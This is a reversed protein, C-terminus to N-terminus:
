RPIRLIQGPFILNPDDIQFRNAEYIQSWTTGENYDNKAISSLTDGRKVEYTDFGYSERGMINRGFVVPVAVKDIEGNDGDGMDGRASYEFVEVTGQATEPTRGLTIEERYKGFTGMSGGQTYAEVLQKGNADRVRISISGEFARSIGSVEIPDDVIDHPQPWRM